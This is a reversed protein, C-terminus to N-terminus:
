STVVVFIFHLLPKMASDYRRDCLLNVLNVKDEQIELDFSFSMTRYTRNYKKFSAYSKDMKNTLLVLLKWFYKKLGLSMKQLMEEKFRYDLLLQM